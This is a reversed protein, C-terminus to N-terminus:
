ERLHGIFENMERLVDAENSIFVFHSANTLRVVRAGPVRCL